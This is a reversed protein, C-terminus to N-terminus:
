KKTINCGSLHKDIFEELDVPRVRVARGINVRTIGGREMLRYAMSRSIKSIGAVDEVKLFKGDNSISVENDLM